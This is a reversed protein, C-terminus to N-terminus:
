SLTLFRRPCRSFLLFLLFLFLFNIIKKLKGILQVIVLIHFILFDFKGKFDNLITNGFNLFVLIPLLLKGLFPVLFSLLGVHLWGRYRQLGVGSGL